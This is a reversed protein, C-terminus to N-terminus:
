DMAIGDRGAPIDGNCFPISSGNGYFIGPNAYNAIICEYCAANMEGFCPKRTAPM